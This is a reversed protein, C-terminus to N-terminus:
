KKSSFIGLLFAKLSSLLKLFFLRQTSIDNRSKTRLQKSLWFSLAVHGSFRISAVKFYIIVTQSLYLLPGFQRYMKPETPVFLASRFVKKKVSAM